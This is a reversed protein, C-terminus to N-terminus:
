AREYREKRCEMFECIMASGGQGASMGPRRVREGAVLEAATRLQAVALQRFPFLRSSSVFCSAPDDDADAAYAAGVAGAAELGSSKALRAAGAARAAAAEATATPTLAALTALGTKGRSPTQQAPPARWFGHHDLGDKAAM